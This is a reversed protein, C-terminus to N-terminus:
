TRSGTDSCCRGCGTSRSRGSQSWASAYEICLRFMWSRQKKLPVFRMTPRIAAETITEVDRDDNKQAKVYPRVYEPPMLRGWRGRAEWKRRTGAGRPTARAFRRVVQWGPGRDARRSRKFDTNVSTM